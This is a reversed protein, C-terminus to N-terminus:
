REPVQETSVRTTGSLNWFLLLVTTHTHTLQEYSTNDKPHCVTGSIPTTGTM